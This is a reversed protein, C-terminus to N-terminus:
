RLVGGGLIDGPCICSCSADNKEPLLSSLSSKDSDNKRKGQKNLRSLARKLRTAVEAQERQNDEIARSHDLLNRQMEEIRKELDKKVDPSKVKDRRLKTSKINNKIRKRHYELLRINVSITKLTANFHDELEERSSYMYQLMQDHLQQRSPKNREKEMRERELREKRAQKSEVKGVVMGTPNLKTHGGQSASPPIIQSYHVEGKDDVWRYLGAHVVSVSGIFFIMLPVGYRLTTIVSPLAFKQVGNLVSELSTKILMRYGFASVYMM